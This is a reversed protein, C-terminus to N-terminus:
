EYEGADETNANEVLEGPETDFSDEKVAGADSVM